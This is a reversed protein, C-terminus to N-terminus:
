YIPLLESIEMSGGDNYEFSKVDCIQSIDGARKLIEDKSFKEGFIKM